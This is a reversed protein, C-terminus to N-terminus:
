CWMVAGLHPGVLTPLEVSRGVSFAPMDPDLLTVPVRPLPLANVFSTLPLADFRRRGPMRWKM